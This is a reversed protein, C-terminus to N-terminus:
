LLGSGILYNGKIKCKM